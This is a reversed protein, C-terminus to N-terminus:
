MGQNNPKLLSDKILVFAALIPLVSALFFGIAYKSISAEMVRDNLELGLFHIGIGEGDVQTRLSWLDIGKLIMLISILVFCISLVWRAVLNMSFGEKLFDYCM